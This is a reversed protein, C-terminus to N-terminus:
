REAGARKPRAADPGSKPRMLTAVAAACGCLAAIALFTDDFAKIREDIPGGTEQSLGVGHATLRWELLIGTLSVGLAGGLQRAFNVASSGHAILETALGRMAGLGLAPMVFGLGIRGVIVWLVLILYSTGLSVTALLGFSTTLVVLGGSVLWYAPVHDALRGALPIVVALVLGAPLLVLGARAPGYQLAMQLYIPLLYTSGFLGMGYILSVSSGVAFQRYAFPRLNMLPAQMRRQLWVFAALSLGTLVLLALGVSRDAENLRTVGNLLSITAVGVLLLGKWDIPQSPNSIAALPLYKRSLALAALGFPIIVFFISRWGYHEVLVGGISPGIAPALVVGFGFIGMARGQEKTEFLRLIIISPIPQLIGAALGEVVRMVLVLWFTQALGGCLGGLSLLVVVSMYTRRLGFRQLLWPTLLMSLTMALMFGASVWQAQAQGVVFYRSFDPIAVNVITSAMISAMTGIMVTLLVLWKHRPGHRQRL